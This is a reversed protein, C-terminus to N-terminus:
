VVCECFQLDKTMLECFKVNQCIATHFSFEALLSFMYEMLFRSCLACNRWASVRLAGFATLAVGVGQIAPAVNIPFAGDCTAVCICYTAAFEICLLGLIACCVATCCAATGMDQPATACGETAGSPFGAPCGGHRHRRLRYWLLRGRRLGHWLLRGQWRHLNRRLNRGLQGCGHHFATGNVAVQHFLVIAKRLTM